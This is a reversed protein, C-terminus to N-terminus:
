ASWLALAGGLLQVGTIFASNLLYIMAAAATALLGRRIWRPDTGFYFRSIAKAVYV